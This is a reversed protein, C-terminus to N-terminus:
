RRVQKLIGLFIVAGIVAIVISGILNTNEDSIGLLWFVFGGIFSGIIGVIIDTICGQQDNTGMIMSALWGAIAGIVIWSIIGVIM